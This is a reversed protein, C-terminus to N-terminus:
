IIHAKKESIHKKNNSDYTKFADDRVLISLEQSDGPELMVTKAYGCLNVSAQEIGNDIDYQTYPKQIYIQAVDKGAKNGINKVTVKVDIDGNEKTTASFNSFEFDTYSDGYGFPFAVEEKYTWTNNKSAGIGANSKANGKNLVTDEYRTEYYKYGVYIGEAYTLYM